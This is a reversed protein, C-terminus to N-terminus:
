ATVIGQLLEQGRKGRRFRAKLARWEKEELAAYQEYTIGLQAASKRQKTEKTKAIMEPTRFASRPKKANTAKQKAINEANRTNLTGNEKRAEIARETWAPDWTRHALSESIKGAWTIKRGKQAASLRVKSEESHKWGAVVRGGEARNLLIGGEAERGYWAIFFIEWREAEEITLGSRLVRVLSRDFPIPCSDHHGFPRRHRQSGCAIGVYYPSGAPATKSDSHRLYCYVYCGKAAVAKFDVPQLNM